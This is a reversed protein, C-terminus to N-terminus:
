MKLILEVAKDLNYAGKPANKEFIMLYKYNDSGSLESWIKGLELKEASDHNDRDAGKTEALIVTGKKTVIIFDPYHNAKYGNLAFGGNKVLNRHWFAINSGGAVQMIFQEELSNMESEHTYLSNGIDPGLKKLILTQPFKWFPKTRIAGFEKHEIFQKEAHDDSLEIIKHKIQDSYLRCNIAFDKLQEPEMNELIRKIYKKIDGDSVAVVNGIYQMAQHVLDRVQADKPKALISEILKKQIPSDEMKSYTARSDDPRTEEIDAKYLRSPTGEFKLDIAKEYLKFGELLPRRELFQLGDTEAVFLHLDETRSMFQPLLMSKALVAVDQRMPYQKAKLEPFREMSPNSEYEAIQKEMEVTEAEAITEIEGLMTNAKQGKGIKVFFREPDFLIEQDATAPILKEAEPMLDKERYDKESFGSEKLGKIISQLTENFKASATIVYSLNLLPDVHKMAYPQRLVRGLIQTVDVPSSRDALSALIYAFPCDWGEKLANITIVFRVPCEKDMLDIGKLEDKNATKIKIQEEKIGVKILQEKLKDFTTNEEKGKSQAQFLVMPRIYRGGNKEQEMAIEELRQQLHLASEIVSEKDQQNYVIVPLKVMHEKKLEIAPVMSIINANDKPTATLDLIFSPNLDQLMEVSLKTEANHSEDVILVPNLKRIINILATEDSGELVHADDNGSTFTALAGNQEYIKKDDKNKSRISSYNMVMISLQEQVISPNFSAGQLLEKKQYVSVRNNFLANLKQCYPHEPDSLNNVTQNLLNGWPVLWVVAKTKTPPLADFITKVANCAIFTKGGATPVKICLHVAEPVNDQYPRMGEGSLPNYFGVKETWYTNFARGANEYKKYYEFYAALDRIVQKQYSKLEM